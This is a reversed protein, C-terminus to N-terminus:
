EIFDALVCVKKFNKVEGDPHFLEAVVIYIGIQAVMGEESTGNWTIIGETALLSNSSITTIEFGEDDYIKINAVYGPKDLKYNIVLFDNDGDSNPSFTQSVLEFEGEINATTVLNSNVVGPTAFGSTSSASHWNDESQTDATFSIRELSVGETDDLLEFHLDENYDFQDIYDTPASSHSISVNGSDNNFSPLDVEIIRDADLTTYTGILFNKDETFCIYDGPLLEIDEDIMKEEAKDVNSIILGNLNIFKDSNNFIEVFDSGGSFPDSLIENIALDGVSPPVTVIFSEATPILPNGNEDEVNMIALQYPVGSVFDEDFTLFVRVGDAVAANPSGFNQDVVYNAVNEASNVDVKENFSLLISNSGTVELTSLLPGEEDQEFDVISIDDYFFNEKRTETYKCYFGFTNLTNFNYTNDMFELELEKLGTLDYDSSLSWMGNPFITISLRAQAPDSAIAGETASALLTEAGNDLRFVKVADSSGTEGIQLYYGNAISPDINDLGLYILSFNSSSPAMELRFTFDMQISDPYDVSTFLSSEGAEPAMLQLEGNTNVIFDEINGMWIPDNTFDGDTFDEVLQAACIQALALFIVITLPRIITSRNRM